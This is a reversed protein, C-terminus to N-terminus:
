IYRNWFSADKFHKRLEDLNSVTNHKSTKKSKKWRTKRPDLTFNEEPFYKALLDSLPSFDRVLSEYEFVSYNRSFFRVFLPGLSLKAQEILLRRKFLSKDFHVQPLKVDKESHFVGSNMAIFRSLIIEFLDTRKINIVLTNKDRLLSIMPLNRKIQDYMIKYVTVKGTETLIEKVYECCSYKESSVKKSHKYEQYFKSPKLAPDGGFEDSNIERFVEGYTRFIEVQSLVQMLWTTGSRQTSVIVINKIEM